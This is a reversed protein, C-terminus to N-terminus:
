LVRSARGRQLIRRLLFFWQPPPRDRREDRAGGGRRLWVAKSNLRQVKLPGVARLPGEPRLRLWKIPFWVLAIRFCRRLPFSSFRAAESPSSRSPAPRKSRLSVARAPERSAVAFALVLCPSIQFVNKKAAFFSFVCLVFQPCARCHNLQQATLPGIARLPGEPRLRLWKFCFDPSTASHSAWRM